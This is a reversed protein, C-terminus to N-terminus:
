QLWITAHFLGNKSNLLSNDTLVNYTVDYTIYFIFHKCQLLLIINSFLHTSMFCAIADYDRYSHITPPIDTPDYPTMM